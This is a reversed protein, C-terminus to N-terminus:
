GEDPLADPLAGSAPRRAISALMSELVVPDVPKVFHRDFGAARARLRDQEQGWGTLAVLEVSGAWAEKRIRTALEYGNLGPMGIDLLAVAPRVRNVLELAEDGSYAVHVEHGSHRLLMALMDASDRSDDAVLVSLRRHAEAPRSAAVDLETENQVIVAAPLRVVFTSGLDPGDSHAEIQGGHLEVLARCLFLGIGLGGGVQGERPEVKGFIEFLKAQLETSLGVGTDLVSLVVGSRDARCQLRILGNEHTYKAANILLNALVQTLRVPDVELTVPSLPIDVHIRHNKADIQPRAIELGAEVIERLRVQTKNLALQGRNFRAVDLLGDLLAAMNSVQRTIASRARDLEVRSLTPSELLRAATRIPALPNRLEHSLTALFATKLHESERLAAELRRRQAQEAQGESVAANRDLELQRRAQELDSNLQELEVRRRYLEALVAVKSRFIEPVIPVTIYDIAGVEYGRLADLATLHVGTVFIIPVHQFRPHDRILRATEFGDMGPMSVDLIIVAFVQRLLLDLGEKGSLARVCTVGVGELISEYTLLRAPQDDILLVTPGRSEGEGYPAVPKAIRQEVSDM